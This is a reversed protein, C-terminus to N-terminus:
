PVPTQDVASQLLHETDAIEESLLRHRLVHFFIQHVHDPHVSNQGDLLATAQAARQLALTARTSVAHDHGILTRLTQCLALLYRQLTESVPLAATQNQLSILDELTLVTETIQAAQQEAHYRLIALQTEDDPLGMPISVLFRDLQPEPLPFTGTSSSDNQTAVVIFPNPLPRTEGDITVQRENMAELLSSQTRPSARNIEDALLLNAFVPGAIFDFDGNQQRYLNYGLIDSPLLDPTFQVRSFSGGLSSALTHALTTKGIGPPGTVLAHGRGLLATLLLGVAESSGLVTSLLQDRLSSLPHTPM